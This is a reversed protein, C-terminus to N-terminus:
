PVPGPATVNHSSDAKRRSGPRSPSGTQVVPLRCRWPELCILANSSARAGNQLGDTEATAQAHGDIPESPEQKLKLGAAMFRRWAAPTLEGARAARKLADLEGKAQASLRLAVLSAHESQRQAVVRAAANLRRFRLAAEDAKARLWPSATTRAQHLKHGLGNTGVRLWSRGISAANLSARILERSKEATWTSGALGMDRRTIALARGGARARSMGTSAVESSRQAITRTKAAMWASGASVADRSALSFAHGM